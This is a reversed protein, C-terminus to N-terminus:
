CFVTYCLSLHVHCPWTSPHLVSDINGLVVETEQCVMESSNTAECNGPIEDSANDILKTVNGPKFFSLGNLIDTVVDFISLGLGFVKMIIRGYEM